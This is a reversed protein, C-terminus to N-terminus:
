LALVCSDSDLGRCKAVVFLVRPQALQQAHPKQVGTQSSQRAEYFHHIRGYDLFVGPHLALSQARFLVSANPTPRRDLELRAASRICCSSQPQVARAQEEARCREDESEVSDGSSECVQVM